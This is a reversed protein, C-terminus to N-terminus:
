RHLRVNVNIRTMTNPTCPFLHSNCTYASASNMFTRNRRPKQAYDQSNESKLNRYPNRLGYSLPYPKRDPKGGTEKVTYRLQVRSITHSQTLKFFYFDWPLASTVTFLLSSFELSKQISKRWSNPRQGNYQATYLLWVSLIKVNTWNIIKKSKIEFNNILM